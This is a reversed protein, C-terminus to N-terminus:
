NKVIKQQAVQGECIARVIYFGPTLSNVNIVETQSSSNNQVSKAIQGAGNLIEFLVTKNQWSNPVTIKVESSAPNPYTVINLDNTTQKSIRITRTESYQNKGDIDVTRLRYYIVGSQISVNDPFSYNKRETTNGYAFIMGADNFNKGDYSREIVFHSVNIETATSWKLDVKNSNNLTASFSIFSVPLSISSVFNIIVTATNSTLPSFGNDTLKYTFSTTTGPFGLSPSFTFAGNPNLSVIGNSSNSVITATMTEGDPETDNNMINGSFAAGILGTFVDNVAIPASNCTGSGYMANSSTSLNDIIIRSSGDGSAGGLKLVLKKVGPSLLNFTHDFNQVTVPSNKDMNITYLLTYIGAADLLGMEISRTANGSIKSSVKYDFAVTFLTSNINLAPTQLDKTNGSTPPNSFMSGTGSIVDAPDTTQSIGSLTWCNSTLSSETGDFNQTFQANAVTLMLLAFFSLLITKMTKM